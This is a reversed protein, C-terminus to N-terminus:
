TAPRFPLRHSDPAPGGSYDALDGFWIYAVALLKKPLRSRSPPEPGHRASLWFVPRGLLQKSAEAKLM